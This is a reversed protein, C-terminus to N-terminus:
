RGYSRTRSAGMEVQLGLLFRPCNCIGLLERQNYLTGELEQLLCCSSVFCNYSNLTIGIGLVSNCCYCYVALLRVGGDTKEVFIDNASPGSDPSVRLSM